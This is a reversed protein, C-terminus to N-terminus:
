ERVPRRDARWVNGRGTRSLAIAVVGVVVTGAVATTVVNGWDFARGSVRMLTGELLVTFVLVWSLGFLLRERRTRGLVGVLAAPTLFLFGLYMANLVPVDEANIDLDIVALALSAGVYLRTRSVHHSHAVTVLLNAGDYTVLVDRPQRDAFVGPIILEPRNGNVGTKPTRLRFVLDAGQQGLTFNRHEVDRSYSVIRAPGDQNADDTACRVRLTFAHTERLRRAVAAAPGETRLLTGAGLRIGPPGSRDRHNVWELSPLNGTADRYPGPGGFQFAAVRSGPLDLPAGAAFQRVLRAPTAADTVELAFVRGRWPRDGTGENGILLPYEASWNSLRTRGQFVASLLLALVTFATMLGVLMAPSRNRVWAIGAEAGPGWARQALAGALAGMTNSLLDMVSPGRRPLFAQTVEVTLSILAGAAAALVVLGMGRRGGQGSGYVLAGVPVFLLVNLVIESAPPPTYAMAWFTELGQTLAAPALRFDFPFLTVCGVCLLWVFLWLVRAERRM